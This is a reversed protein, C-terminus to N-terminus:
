DTKLKYVLHIKSLDDPTAEKTDFLAIFQAEKLSIINMDNRGNVIIKILKKQPDYSWTGKAKDKPDNSTKIFTKDKNFEFNIETAGPMREIKM